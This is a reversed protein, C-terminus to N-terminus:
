KVEAVDRAHMVTIYGALRSRFALCGAGFVALVAAGRLPVPIGHGALALAAATGVTAATLIVVIRVSHDDDRPWPLRTMVVGQAAVVLVSAVSYAAAVGDAGWRAALVFMLVVRVVVHGFGILLTVRNRQAALLGQSQILSIGEAWFGVLGILLIQTVRAADHASFAGREYVLAILERGAVIAVACALALLLAGLTATARLSRALRALDRRVFLGSWDGITSLLAGGVLLQQGVALSRSAYFYQAGGAALHKSALLRELPVLASLLGAIVVTLATLLGTRDFGGEVIKIPRETAFGLCAVQLIGGGILGLYVGQV